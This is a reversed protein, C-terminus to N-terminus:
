SAEGPIAVVMRWSNRLAVGFMTLFAGTATILGDTQDGRSLQVAGVLLYVSVAIPMVLLWFSRELTRWRRRDALRFVPWWARLTRWWIVAVVAGSVAARVQLPLGPILFVLALCLVSSLITLTSQAPSGWQSTRDTILDVHLKTAVLLLGALTAAAGASAAFFLNWDGM